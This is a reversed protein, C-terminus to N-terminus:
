LHRLEVARQSQAVPGNAEGGCASAVTGRILGVGLWFGEQLSEQEALSVRAIPLKPRLPGRVRQNPTESDREPGRAPGLRGSGSGSPSVSASAQAPGTM